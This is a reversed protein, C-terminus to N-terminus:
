ALRITPLATGIPSNVQASFRIRTELFSAHFTRDFEIAVLKQFWAPKYCKLSMQLKAVSLTKMAGGVAGSTKCAHQPAVTFTTLENM